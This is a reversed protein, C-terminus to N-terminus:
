IPISADSTKLLSVMGGIRAGSGPDPPFFLGQHTLAANLEEWGVAPQVVVDMDEAHIAIIKNMHKFDICVGGRTATLAGHFSTGGSYATVPIHRRSCIKMLASAESTSAPLVILAAIQSPPAPSWPTHSRALREETSSIINEPGLLGAFEALAGSINEESIDHQLPPMDSLPMTSRNVTHM